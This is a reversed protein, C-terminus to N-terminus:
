NPDRELLSRLQINNKANTMSSTVDADVIKATQTILWRDM